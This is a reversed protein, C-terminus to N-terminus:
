RGVKLIRQPMAAVEAMRPLRLDDVDCVGGERHRVCQCPVGVNVVGNRGHKRNDGRERRCGRGSLAYLGEKLTIESFASLNRCMMNLQFCAERLCIPVPTCPGPYATRGRPGRTSLPLNVQSSKLPPLRRAPKCLQRGIASSSSKPTYM